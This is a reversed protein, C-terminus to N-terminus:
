KGHPTGPRAGHARAELVIVRLREAEDRTAYLERLLTDRHYLQYSVSGISAALSVVPFLVTLRRLQAETM